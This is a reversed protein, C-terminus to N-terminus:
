ILLNFTRLYDPAPPPSRRIRGVVPHPQVGNVHAHPSSVASPAAHATAPLPTGGVAAPTELPAPSGICSLDFAPQISGAGGAIERGSMWLAAATVFALLLLVHPRRPMRTNHAAM